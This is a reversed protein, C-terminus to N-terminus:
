RKHFRMWVFLVGTGVTTVLLGPLMATPVLLMLPLGFRALVAASGLGVALAVLLIGLLIWHLRAIVWQKNV